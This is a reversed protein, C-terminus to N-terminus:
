IPTSAQPVWQHTSTVMLRCPFLATTLVKQITRVPSVTGLNTVQQTCHHFRFLACLVFPWRKQVHHCQQRIKGRLSERAASTLLKAAAVSRSDAVLDIYRGGSREAIHRLAAPDSKRSSNITYVPVQVHPFPKGGFNSIGDSFLLYEGVAQQPQFDGLNTAGDHVTAELAARLGDWNGGHVEHWEGPEAADRVRTLWVRADHVRKFYADLLAFERARDRERASLSADWVLGIEGPPVRRWARSRDRVEAVFYRSGEFPQVFVAPRDSAAVAVEMMGKPTYDSRDFSLVYDDGERQFAQGAPLGSNM